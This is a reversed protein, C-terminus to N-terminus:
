APRGGHESIITAVERRRIWLDEPLHVIAGGNHVVVRLDWVAADNLDRIASAARYADRENDFRFSRMRATVM